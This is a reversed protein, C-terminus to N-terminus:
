GRSSRRRNSRHWDRRAFRAAGPPCWRHDAERRGFGSRAARLRAATRGTRYAPWSRRRGRAEGRGIAGMGAALQPRGIRARRRLKGAPDMTPAVEAVEDEEVEAVAVPDGLDDDVPGLLRVGVCDGAPDPRLEHDATSPSTARRRAPCPSGWAASPRCRAARAGVHRDQRLRLGRRERDVLGFAWISSDSRSM